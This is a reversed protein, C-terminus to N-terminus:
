KREYTSHLLTLITNIFKTRIFRYKLKWILIGAIWYLFAVILLGWILDGFIPTLAMAISFGIFVSSLIFLGLSITFAFVLGALKSTKETVDLKAFEIHNEVYKRANIALEEWAPTNTSMDYSKSTNMPQIEWEM